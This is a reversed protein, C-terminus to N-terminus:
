VERDSAMKLDPRGPPERDRIVVVFVEAELGEVRIQRPYVRASFRRTRVKGERHWEAAQDAEARTPHVELWALQPKRRGRTRLIRINDRPINM